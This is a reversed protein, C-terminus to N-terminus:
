LKSSLIQSKRPVGERRLLLIFQMVTMIRQFFFNELPNSKSMGSTLVSFLKNYM